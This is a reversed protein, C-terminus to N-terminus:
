PQKLHYMAHICPHHLMLNHLSLAQMCVPNAHAHLIGHLMGWSRGTCFGIDSIWFFVEEKSLYAPSVLFTLQVFDELLWEFDRAAPASDAASESRGSTSCAEEDKPSLPM